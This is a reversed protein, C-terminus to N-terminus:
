AEALFSIGNFSFWGNTGAIIRVNGNVIDFQAVGTDCLALGIHSRNPRFGAPLNFIATPSTTTGLKALGRLHVMGLDDKRFSPAPWSSPTDTLDYQVWNNLLTANTWARTVSM